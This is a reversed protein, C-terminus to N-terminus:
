KTEKWMEKLTKTQSETLIIRYCDNDYVYCQGCKPCVTNGYNEKHRWEYGCIECKIYRSM